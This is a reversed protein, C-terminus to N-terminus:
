WLQRRVNDIHKIQWWIHSPWIAQMMHTAVYNRYGELVKIGQANLFSLSSINFILSKFVVLLSWLFGVLCPLLYQEVTDTSHTMWIAYQETPM